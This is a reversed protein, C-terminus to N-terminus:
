AAGAREYSIAHASVNIAIGPGLLLMSAAAVIVAAVTWHISFALIAQAGDPSAMRAARAPVFLLGISLGLSQPLARRLLTAGANHDFVTTACAIAGATLWATLAITQARSRPHAFLSMQAASARLTFIYALAGVAVMGYRIPEAIHYQHMAWAWDDTKTAASFALQLAFWMLNFAAVLICFLRTASSAHTVFRAACMAILGIALSAFPGSLDIAAGRLSCNVYNSSLSIVQGGLALCAAGHGLAHHAIDASAYALLGIAAITVISDKRISNM